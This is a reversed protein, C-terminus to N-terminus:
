GILKNAFQVLRDCRATLFSRYDDNFESADCFATALTAARAGDEGVLDNLYVSPRKRGINKNEAASLFCFNGLVNIDADSVELERLFARPYIHHFESRNYRQLVKDLDISKGSLLSQPDNNALLLVFTKTAAAGTRFSNLFFKREIVVEINDLNNSQGNKLKAM